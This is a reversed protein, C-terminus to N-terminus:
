YSYLYITKFNSGSDSSLISLLQNSGYVSIRIPVHDNFYKPATQSIYTTLAKIESVSYFSTNVTINMGSLTGDEYHAQATASSISPFFNQIATQFNVFSTNDQSGVSTTGSNQEPFVLNQINVNTWKSIQEGSKSLFYAYPAGGVLSDESANAYMVILIPIDNGIKKNSRLRKLVKSAMANGQTVMEAKSINQTYVPGNTVKSYSDTRNMALGITMGALDLKSGNVQNMFDNEELSQIYYPNRSNNKQGNDAPNLGSTNSSSYRSLWNDITNASLYQGEQFIYKKTSFFNKSLDNLSLEFSQANFNSETTVAIGRAASTVYHGNSVVSRYEGQSNNQNIVQITNKTTSTTSTQQRMNFFYLGGVVILLVAFLLILVEIITLRRRTQRM